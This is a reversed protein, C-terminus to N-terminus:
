TDETDESRATQPHPESLALVMVLGDESPKIYYRPRRYLEVFGQGSYLRLATVNSPRVELLLRQCGAGAALDIVACLLRKGLGQRRYDPHVALNTIHWEDLVGWVCLYAVVKGEREVVLPPWDSEVEEKMSAKSWPDPFSAREIGVMVDLDDHLARRLRIPDAVM